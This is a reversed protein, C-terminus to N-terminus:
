HKQLTSTKTTVMLLGCLPLCQMSEMLLSQALAWSLHCKVQENFICALCTANLMHYSLQPKSSLYILQNWLQLEVLSFIIENLATMFCTDSGSDRQLLIVNLWTCLLKPHETPECLIFTNLKRQSWIILTPSLLTNCYQTAGYFTFLQTVTVKQTFNLM